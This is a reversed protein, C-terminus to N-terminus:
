APFAKFSGLLWSSLSKPYTEKSFQTKHGLEGQAKAHM